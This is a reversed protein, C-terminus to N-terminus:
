LCRAGCTRRRSSRHGKSSAGSGSPAAPPLQVAMAAEIESLCQLFIIACLYSGRDGSKTSHSRDAAGRNCAM